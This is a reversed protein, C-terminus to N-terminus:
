DATTNSSKNSNEVPYIINNGAMTERNANQDNITQNPNYFGHIFGGKESSCIDGGIVKNNLILLDAFVENSVDPYNCIKYTFRKCIKGMYNSLDLGQELQIKNYNEFVENFYNPIRIQCIEVEESEVNWGFQALFKIREQRTSVNLSYKGQSSVAYDNKNSNNALIGRLVLLLIIFIIIFIIVKKQKFAKYMKKFM